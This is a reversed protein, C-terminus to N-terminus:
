LVSFVEPKTRPLQLRTSGSFTRSRERERARKRETKKKGGESVILSVHQRDQAIEERKSM